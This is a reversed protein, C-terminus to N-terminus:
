RSGQIFGAIYGTTTFIGIGIMNGILMMAADFRSLSRDLELNHTM